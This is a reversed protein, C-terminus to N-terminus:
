WSTMRRMMPSHFSSHFRLEEILQVLLAADEADDGAGLVLVDDGHGVAGEVRQLVAALLAAADRYVVVAHYGAVLVHAKHVVDEGLVDHAAERAPLHGYAVAAVAGGAPARALVGLGDDYAVYLAAHGERVVAVEGVGALQALLELELAGDEGGGGVALDYAVDYGALPQAGAGDLRGDAGGHVAELARVGERDHGRALEDGRAVGHAEARQAYALQGVAPGYGALAAGQVGYARPEQAVHLGALYDGDGALPMSDSRLWQPPGVASHTKSNM